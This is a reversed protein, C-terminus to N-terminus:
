KYKVEGIKNYSKLIYDIPKDINFGSDVHGFVRVSRRYESFSFPKLGCFKYANQITKPKMILNEYNITKTQPLKAVREPYKCANLYREILEEQIDNPVLHIKHRFISYQGSINGRPHLRHVRHRLSQNHYM